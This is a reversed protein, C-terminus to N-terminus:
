LGNAPRKPKWLGAATFLRWNCGDNWHQTKVGSSSDWIHAHIMLVLDGQFWAPLGMQHGLRTSNMSFFDDWCPPVVSSPRFCFHSCRDTCTGGFRRYWSNIQNVTCPIGIQNTHSKIYTAYYRRISGYLLRKSNGKFKLFTIFVASFLVQKIIMRSHQSGMQIVSIVKLNSFIKKEILFMWLIQPESQDSDLPITASHCTSPPGEAGPHYAAQAVAML